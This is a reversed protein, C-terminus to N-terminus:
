RIERWIQRLANISLPYADPERLMALLHNRPWNCARIAADIESERDLKRCTMEFAEAQGPTMGDGVHVPYNPQRRDRAKPGHYGCEAILEPALTVRKREPQHPKRIM